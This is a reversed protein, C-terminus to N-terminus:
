PTLPAGRTTRTPTTRRRTPLTSSSAVRAPVTASCSSGLRPSKTAAATYSNAIVMMGANFTYTPTSAAGRQAYYKDGEHTVINPECEHRMLVKGTAADKLVLIVQEKYKFIASGM